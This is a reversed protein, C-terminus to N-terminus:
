LSRRMSTGTIEPLRKSIGPWNATAPMCRSFRRRICVTAEAACPAIGRPRTARELICCTWLRTTSSARGPREAAAPEGGNARGPKPPAKWPRRSSGKRRTALSATRSGETRTTRLESSSGRVLDKRTYASLRRRLTATVLHRGHGVPQLLTQVRAYLPMGPARNVASLVVQAPHACVQLSQRHFWGM